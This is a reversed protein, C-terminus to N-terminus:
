YSKNAYNISFGYVVVGSESTSHFIHYAMAYGDLESPLAIESTQRSNDQASYRSTGLVALAFTSGDDETSIPVILSYENNLNKIM